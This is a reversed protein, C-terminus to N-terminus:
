SAMIADSKEGDQYFLLRIFRDRGGQFACPSDERYPTAAAVGLQRLFLRLSTKTQGTRIGRRESASRDLCLLLKARGSDPATHQYAREQWDLKVQRM